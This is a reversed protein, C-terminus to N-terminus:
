DEATVLEEGMFVHLCKLCQCATQDMELLLTGDEDYYMTGRNHAQFRNGEPGCEPCYVYVRESNKNTKM